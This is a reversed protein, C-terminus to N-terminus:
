FDSDESDAIDTEWDSESSWEWFHSGPPLRRPSKVQLDYDDTPDNPLRLTPIGACKMLLAIDDMNVNFCHRIDLSELKPCNDLITALGKNTLLNGFLQLSHLGHMNAIGKADKDLKHRKIYSFCEKSLRFRKLQPCAKGVVKFVRAGAIGDCLSIELEELQPLKKVAAKLGKKTIRKCSILHLTKLCPAQQTLYALFADGGADRGCFAECQGASLRVAAFAMVSRFFSFYAKGQGHSRMSIRRWLSPEDRAARRWSRCVGGAATLVDVHDLGSLIKLLADLPLGDAWDREAQRPRLRARRRRLRGDSRRSTPPM